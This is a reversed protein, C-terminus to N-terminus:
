VLNKANIWSPESYGHWKVYYQKYEGVGKSKLVKQIRYIDPKDIVQLEQKYFKGKLQEGNVDKISYMVPNHLYIKTIQFVEDSWNQDFNKVFPSLSIRSIRVYDDVNYTKQKIEEDNNQLEWLKLENDKSVESPKMNISRHISNNYAHVIKPLVDVWKKNGQKTLYKTLRERLTRNFREVIAAKYQSYVSYHNIQHKDLLEKVKSNYFEKGEDTQLHRPKDTKIMTSIAASVDIASKSKLPLARGYRSFVDICVLIYRYGGNVSAYPIMEMLDMQWLDNIGSTKYARTPFRKRIPKHLSYALENRLWSKTDDKSKGSANKLKAVGAFGAPNKPDFWIQDFTVKTLQNKPPKKSVKKVTKSPKKVTKEQSQKLVKKKMLKKEM